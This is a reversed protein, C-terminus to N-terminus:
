TQAIQQVKAAAGPAPAIKDLTPDVALAALTQNAKDNVRLGDVGPMQLVQRVMQGQGTLAATVSSLILNMLAAASVIRKAAVDGFLDALQANSVMLASLVAVAILMKQKGNLNFLPSKTANDDDIAM